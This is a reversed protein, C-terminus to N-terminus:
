VSSCDLEPARGRAPAVTPHSAVLPALALPSVPTVIGYGFVWGMGGIPATVGGDPAGRGRTVKRPM